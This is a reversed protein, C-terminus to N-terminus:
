LNVILKLLTLILIYYISFEIPPNPITIHFDANDPIVTPTIKAPIMIYENQYIAVSIIGTIKFHLSIIYIFSIM